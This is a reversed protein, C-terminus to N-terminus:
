QKKSKRKYFEKTVFGDALEEVSNVTKSFVYYRAYSNDGGAGSFYKLEWGNEIMFNAADVIDDFVKGRDDVFEPAYDKGWLILSVKNGFNFWVRGDYLVECLYTKQQAGASVAFMVIMFLTIFTKKM